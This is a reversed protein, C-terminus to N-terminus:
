KKSAKKEFQPSYMPGSGDIEDAGQDMGSMIKESPNLDPVVGHDATLPLPSRTLPM